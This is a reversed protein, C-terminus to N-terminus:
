EAYRIIIRSIIERAIESSAKDISREKLIVSDTVSGSAQFTIRIPSQMSVFEIINGDDIVKIDVTFVVEQEQVRDEVSAIPSLKFATITSELTIDGGIHRVKIGQAIFERSLARHLREELRPEYTM